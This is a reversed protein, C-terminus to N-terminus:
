KGNRSRNGSSDRLHAGVRLVLERPEFPKVMYDIGGSTFGERLDDYTGRATVFIVPVEETVRTSRLRRCIEFGDTDPLRVDLVILDPKWELAAAFGVEGETATRVDYNEKALLVKILELLDEDDEIILLKKPASAQEEMGHSAAGPGLKLAAGRPRPYAPYYSSLHPQVRNLIVGRVNIGLSECRDKLALVAKRSTKGAQVVLLVAANLQLAIDLPDSTALAPPTDILVIDVDRAALLTQMWAGMKQPGFLKGPEASTGGSTIVRLRPDGTHRVVEAVPGEINLLRVRRDPKPPHSELLNILGKDNDLGFVAHLTPCHVDADILLVNHAARALASALGAAIITKGDGPAASTIVFAHDDELNAGRLITTALVRYQEFLARNDTIQAIEAERGGRGRRHRPITGVVPLALVQAADDPDRISDDLYDQLLVIGSVLSLGLVAGIVAMEGRTPSRPEEPIQAWEIVELYPSRAIIQGVIENALSAALVPDSYTVEVRLISTDPLVSAQVLKEPDDTEIGVVELAPNVVDLTKAIIAYTEALQIGTLVDNRDPSSSRLYDGVAILASARYQTPTLLYSSAGAVISVLAILWLWKRFLQWYYKLEM